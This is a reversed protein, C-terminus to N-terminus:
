NVLSSRCFWLHKIAEQCNNYPQWPRKVHRDLWEVHSTLVDLVSQDPQRLATQIADAAAESSRELERVLASVDVERQCAPCISTNAKGTQKLVAGRRCDSCLFVPVESPLRHYTPWRQECALCHCTFFYQKELATKREELDNVAYHYGYNDLVQEGKSIPRIAVLANRGGHIIRVVNPDCSHNVLSLTAYAAAGIEEQEYISTQESKSYESVEHANCPLNQLHRLILGGIFKVIEGESFNASETSGFFSTKTSLLESVFCAILSREFLDSVSRKETNAVIHYVSRYDTSKYQGNEDFGPEGLPAEILKVWSCFKTLSDHQMAATIVVQLALMELKQMKLSLMLTLIYCDFHHNMEWSKKRCTESCFMVVSCRWCPVLARCRRFCHYCHTHYCRPLLVAAFPEEMLLVDGVSVDRTAVVSRGMADSRDVDMCDSASPIQENQGFSLKMEEFCTQKPKECKGTAELGRISDAMSSIELELERRRQSSLRSALQLMGLADWHLCFQLDTPMLM